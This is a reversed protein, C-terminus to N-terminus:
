KKLYHPCASRFSEYNKYREPIRYTAREDELAEFAERHNLGSAQVFAWFREAYGEPRLTDLVVLPITIEEM